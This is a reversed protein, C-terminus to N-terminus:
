FVFATSVNKFMTLFVFVFLRWFVQRLWPSSGFSKHQKTGITECLQEHYLGGQGEGANKSWDGFKFSM